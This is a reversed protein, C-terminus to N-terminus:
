HDTYDAVRKAVDAFTAKQSQSLGVDSRQIMIVKIGLNGAADVKSRGQVSGSNRLILYNAKLSQLTQLGAIM